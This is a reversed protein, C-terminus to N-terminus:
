LNCPKDSARAGMFIPEQAGAADWILRPDFAHAALMTFVVVAAFPLLAGGPTITGLFGFQVLGTLLTVVFVDVMSWRGVWETMKFLWLRQKMGATHGQSVSWVLYILIVLKAVPVVLSAIFVVAAIGWLGHAILVAVGSFITDSREGMLTNMTMVPLINAPFYLIIAAVTYALTKQLSYPKRTHLQNDCRPCFGHHVIISEGVLAHCVECDYLRETLKHGQEDHGVFCNNPHLWAWLDRKNICWYAAGLVAVLTFFAVISVGLVITAMDGLKVSTVLVALLFIELMSWPAAKILWRLLTIQFPLRVGFYCPLVLYCLAMLEFLPFLFITVFVLIALPINDSHILGWVGSLLNAEHHFAGVDLGLFVFCNSIVFLVLGTIVLAATKERWPGQGLALPQACRVCTLVKQACAGVLPVNQVQGCEDCAMLDQHSHEFTTARVTGSVTKPSSTFFTM